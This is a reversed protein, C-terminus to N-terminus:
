DFRGRREGPEGIRGDHGDPGHEHQAPSEGVGANGAQDPPLDYAKGASALGADDQDDHRGGAHRGGEHVVHAYRRDEQGDDHVERFLGSDWGRPKKKWERVRAEQTSQRGEDAGRGVNQHCLCESVLTELREPEEVIRRHSQDHHRRAEDEDNHGYGPQQRLAAYPDPIGCSVIFPHQRVDVPQLLPEDDQSQRFSRGKCSLAKALDPEPGHGSEMGDGDDPVPAGSGQGTWSKRRRAPSRM